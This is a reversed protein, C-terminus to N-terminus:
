ILKFVANVIDYCEKCYEKAYYDVPPKYRIMKEYCNIRVFYTEIPKLKKKCRDCIYNQINNEIMGEAM